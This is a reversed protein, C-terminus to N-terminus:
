SSVRRFFQSGQVFGKGSDDDRGMEIFYDNNGIRRIIDNYLCRKGGSGIKYNRAIMM